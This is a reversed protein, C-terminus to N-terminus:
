RYHSAAPAVSACQSIDGKLVDDGRKCNPQKTRKTRYGGAPRQPKAEFAEEPQQADTDDLSNKALLVRRAWVAAGEASNLV